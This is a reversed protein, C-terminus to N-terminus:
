TKAFQSEVKSDINVQEAIKRVTERGNERVIQRIIEFNEETISTAPRGLSEEDTVCERGETFRGVWKYVTTKKMANDTYPQLLMERVETGSKVLEVTFSVNTRQGLEVGSM